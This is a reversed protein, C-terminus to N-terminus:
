VGITVSVSVNLNAVPLNNVPSSIDFAGIDVGGDGAGQLDTNVSTYGTEMYARYAARTANPNVAQDGGTGTVGFGALIADELGQENNTFGLSNAWVYGHRTSDTFQFDTIHIDNIGYSLHGAMDNDFYGNGGLTGHTLNNADMEAEIFANNDVDAATQTAMFGGGDTFMGDAYPESIICNKVDRIMTTNSGAGPAEGCLINVARHFTARNINISSASNLSPNIGGGSHVQLLNNLSVTQNSILPMDGRDGPFVYGCGDIILNNIPYTTSNGDGNISVLHANPANGTISVRDFSQTSTADRGIGISVDDTETSLVFWTDDLNADLYGCTIGFNLFVSGSVDVEGSGSWEVPLQYNDAPDDNFFLCNTLRPTVTPSAIFNQLRIPHNDSGDADFTGRWAGIALSDMRFLTQQTFGQPGLNIRMQGCNTFKGGDWLFSDGAWGNWFIGATVTGNGFGYYKVGPWNVHFRYSPNFAEPTVLGECVGSANRIGDHHISGGDANWYSTGSGSISLLTANNDNPEVAISHPGQNLTGDNFAIAEAGPRLELDGSPDVTGGITLPPTATDDGLIGSINTLAFGGDNLTDGGNTFDPYDVGEVGPSTNGYTAGDRADGAQTATFDTM